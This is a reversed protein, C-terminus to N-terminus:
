ASNHDLPQDSVALPAIGATAAEKQLEAAEGRSYPIGGRRRLAAYVADVLADWAFPRACSKGGWARTRNDRVDCSIYHRNL